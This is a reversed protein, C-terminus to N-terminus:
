PNERWLGCRQCRCLMVEVGNRDYWAQSHFCPQKYPPRLADPNDWTHGRAVCTAEPNPKPTRTPSATRTVTATVIWSHPGEKPTATVTVAWSVVRPGETLGHVVGRHFIEARSMALWDEASPTKTPVPTALCASLLVATLVRLVRLLPM